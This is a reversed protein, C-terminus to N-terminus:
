YPLNYENIKRQITRRSIGLAEACLSRNGDFRDLTHILVQKEVDQMTMSDTVMVGDPTSPITLEKEPMRDSELNISKANLTSSTALLVAAEVTNRLQRINGPWRAQKLTEYFSDEIEHFVRGHRHCATLIFNHALEKIDEKRKRLPPLHLEIVNLRYLLDERFEGQDVRARLDRNTASLIRVDVQFSQKGGVRTLMRDELVRLLKVQVSLPADGIEDLFLTGGAAREFAGQHQQNAGTFAGKEHGFLESTLLSETFAGCNVAIFPQDCRDSEAHLAHAVLEKGTGSEGTILITAQTPALHKIQNKLQLMTPAEGIINNVSYRDSLTQKLTQVQKRLKVAEIAKSVKAQIEDLDLPKTLYDYAGKKLAEVSSSISGYATMMIVPTSPRQQKIKELITMGDIDPLALDTLVVDFTETKFAQLGDQGNQALFTRYGEFEVVDQVSRGGDPDDEIILIYPIQTM